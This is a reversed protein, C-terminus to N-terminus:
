RTVLGIARRDSRSRVLGIAARASSAPVVIPGRHAVIWIALLRARWVCAPYIITASEFSESASRAQFGPPTWIRAALRKRSEPMPTPGRLRATGIRRLPHRLTRGVPPDWRDRLEVKWDGAREPTVTNSHVDSVRHRSERWM